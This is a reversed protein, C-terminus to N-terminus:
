DLPEARQGPPLAAILESLRAGTSPHRWYPDLERLPLLVFARMAMRPHPLVPGGNAGDSVQDHYAILDLDLIRAANPEGRVRGFETEISLLRALLAAPDLSTEVSAVGNIFDPQDSLPVPASRYWRSREVIHIGGEEMARLAAECTERPPGYRASPLNAGMAVYIM